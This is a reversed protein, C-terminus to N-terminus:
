YIFCLPNFLVAAYVQLLINEIQFSGLVSAGFFWVLGNGSGTLLDKVFHLNL